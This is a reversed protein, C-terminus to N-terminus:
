PLPEEVPDPEAAAAAEAATVLAQVDDDATVASLLTGLVGLATLPVSVVAQSGSDLTYALDLQTGVEARARGDASTFVLTTSMSKEIAM